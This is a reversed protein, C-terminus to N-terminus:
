ARLTATFGGKISSFPIISLFVCVATLARASTPTEGAQVKRRQLSIMYTSVAESVSPNGIWNGTLESKRWPVNGCSHLCGFGYTTAACM